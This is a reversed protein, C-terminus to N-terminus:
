SLLLFSQRSTRSASILGAMNSTTHRREDFIGNSQWSGQMYYLGGSGHGFLILSEVCGSARILIWIIVEGRMQEGLGPRELGPDTRHRGTHTYVASISVM